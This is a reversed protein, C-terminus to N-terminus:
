QIMPVERGLDAMIKLGHEAMTLKALLCSFAPSRRNQLNGEPIKSGFCGLTGHFFCTLILFHTENERFISPLHQDIM